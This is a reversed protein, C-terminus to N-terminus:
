KIECKLFNWCPICNNYSFFPFITEASISILHYMSCGLFGLVFLEYVTWSNCLFLHFFFFSLSSFFLPGRETFIHCRLLLRVHLLCATLCCRNSACKFLVRVFQKILLLVPFLYILIPFAFYVFRAMLLSGAIMRPTTNQPKKCPTSSPSHRCREKHLKISTFEGKEETNQIILSRLETTLASSLRLRTHKGSTLM